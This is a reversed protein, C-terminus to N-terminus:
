VCRWMNNTLLPKWIELRGTFRGLASKVVAAPSCRTTCVTMEGSAHGKVFTLETYHVGTWSSDSSARSHYMWRQGPFWMNRNGWRPPVAFVGFHFFACVCCFSKLLLCAPFLSITWRLHVLPRVSTFRWVDPFWIKLSNCKLGFFLPFLQMYLLDHVACM